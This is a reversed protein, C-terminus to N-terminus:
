LWGQQRYWALTEAIGDKLGTACVLGLKQRLRASDCVWGPARLEAYKQRSLMAPRGTLRAIAEQMQCLPWLAATPLPITLTWTKMQAAIEEALARAQAIEPSAAYFTKGGAAPHTLCAVITEALDKVFVFSLPLRGGGFRPSIHAKIAKFLPLFADDRPGYVASPRLIVYESRCNRVEQEGALKSRGYESVPHPPDEERAPQDPVAPGGAALSSIHVLRQIRGPQQNVAAVVNRTGIHNVTYFESVHLAKVCGACHIVHTINQLAAGLSQPDSLSGTRVDLQPLHAQIFRPNSAPRLLVVTPIGHARLRDLVHSGVFGSAGTLLVKM